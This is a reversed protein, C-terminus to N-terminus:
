ASVPHFGHLGRLAFSGGRQHLQFLGLPQDNMQATVRDAEDRVPTLHVGDVVTARMHAERKVAARDAVADQGAVPVVSAEIEAPAAREVLPGVIQAAKRDLDVAVVDVDIQRRGVVRQRMLPLPQVVPQPPVDWEDERLRRDRQGVRIGASRVRKGGPELEAGQPAAPTPEAPQRRQRAPHVEHRPQGAVLAGGREVVAQGVDGGVRRHLRRPDGSSGSGPSTSGPRNPRQNRPKMSTRSASPAPLTREDGRDAGAGRRLLEGVHEECGGGIVTVQVAAVREVEDVLRELASSM